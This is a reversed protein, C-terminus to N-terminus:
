QKKRRSERAVLRVDQENRNVVEIIPNAAESTVGLRLRGVDVCQCPIAHQERVSM